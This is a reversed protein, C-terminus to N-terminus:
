QGDKQYPFQEPNSECDPNENCPFVRPEGDPLKEVKKSKLIKSLQRPAPVSPTDTTRKKSELPPFDTAAPSQQKAKKEWVKDLFATQITFKLSKVTDRLDNVNWNPASIQDKQQVILTLLMKNESRLKELDDEEPHKPATTRPSVEDSEDSNYGIDSTMPLEDESADKPELDEVNTKRRKPGSSPEGM